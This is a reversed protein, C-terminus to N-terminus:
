AYGAESLDGAASKLLAIAADVDGKDLARAARGLTHEADEIMWRLGSITDDDDPTRPDMPHGLAPGYLAADAQARYHALIAAKEAATTAANM